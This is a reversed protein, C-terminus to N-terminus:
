RGRRCSWRGKRGTCRVVARHGRTCRRSALSWTQHCPRLDLARPQSPPSVRSVEASTTSRARLDVCPLATSHSRVRARRLARRNAVHCGRSLSKTTRCPFTPRLPLRSRMRPHRPKTGDTTDTTVTSLILRRHEARRPPHQANGSTPGRCWNQRAYSSSCVHPSERACSPWFHTVGRHSVGCSKATATTLPGIARASSTTSSPSAASIRGCPAPQQQPFWHTALSRDVHSARAHPRRNFPPVYHCTTTLPQLSVSGGRTHV